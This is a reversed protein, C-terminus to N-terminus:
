DITKSFYSKPPKTACYIEEGYIQHAGRGVPFVVVVIIAVFESKPQYRRTIISGEIILIGKKNFQTGGLNYNRTKFHLM